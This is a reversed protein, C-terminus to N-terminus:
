RRITFLAERSIDPERGFILSKEDSQTLDGLCIMERDVPPKGMRGSLAERVLYHFPQLALPFVISIGNSMILIGVDSIKLLLAQRRTLYL